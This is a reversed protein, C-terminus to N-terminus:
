EMGHVSNVLIYDQSRSYYIENVTSHNSVHNTPVVSSELGPNMLCPKAEGHEYVGSGLQRKRYRSPSDEGSMQGHIRYEGILRYSKNSMRQLSHLTKGGHLIAVAHGVGVGSQTLGM